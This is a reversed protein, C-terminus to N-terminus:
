QSKMLREIIFQSRIERVLPTVIATNVIMETSYQIYYLYNLERTEAHLDNKMNVKVRLTRQVHIIKECQAKMEEELKEIIFQSRIERVM